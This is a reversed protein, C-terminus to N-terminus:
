EIEKRILERQKEFEEDESGSGKPSDNQEDILVGKYVWRKLVKEELMPEFADTADLVLGESRM